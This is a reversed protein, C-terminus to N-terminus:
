QNIEIEEMLNEDSLMGMGRSTMMLPRTPIKSAIEKVTKPTARSVKGIAKGALLAGEGMLRPSSLATAAGLPVGLLPNHLALTAAAGLQGISVHKSLGRPIPSSLAQGALREKIGPSLKELEDILAIRGGYSTNVNDRMSSQLKRLATDATANHGLSLTRKLNDLKDSTEAYNKMAKAYEPFQRTIEADIAKYVDNAAKFSPKGFEQADRIDGIERKMKDLAVPTHFTQPDRNGWKVVTDYIEKRVPLTKPSFDVGEFRHMNLSKGAAKGISQFVNQSVPNVSTKDIPSM